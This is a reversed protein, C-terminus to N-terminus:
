RKELQRPCGRSQVRLTGAFIEPGGASACAGAAFGTAKGAGSALLLLLEISREKRFLGLKEKGRSQLWQRPDRRLILCKLKIREDGGVRDLPWPTLAFCTECQGM